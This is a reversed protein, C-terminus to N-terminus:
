VVRYVRYELLDKGALRGEAIFLHQNLWQYREDGAEFHMVMRMSQDGWDTERGDTAAQKFADTQQVLGTYHLLILADDETLLQVRVDPRWFGDDSVRMWDGGPITTRANIRDGTLTAEAMEHYQREGWPSGKTSEGLPGISKLRYTMEYELKLM